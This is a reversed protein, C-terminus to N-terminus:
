ITFIYQSDIHPVVTKHIAAINQATFIENIPKHEGLSMMGDTKLRFFEFDKLLLYFDRLFVRAYINHANIEFQIIKIGDAALMKEAGRLVSLENGEVDIKLFDIKDIGNKSCFLDITDTEFEIAAIEGTSKFIDNLIEKHTTSLESANTNVTNYLIAKGPASGFGINVPNSKGEVNVKLENFTKEVPEFSFIKAGPLQENLSRTYNGVNAGVDFLVPQNVKKLLPALINKIFFQESGNELHVTTGAGVQLLGSVHLNVNTSKAGYVFARGLNKEGVIKSIIRIFITAAKKM